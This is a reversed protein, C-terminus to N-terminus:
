NQFLYAMTVTLKTESGYVEGDNRWQQGLSIEFDAFVHSLIRCLEDGQLVM